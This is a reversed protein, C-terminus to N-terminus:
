FCDRRRNSCVSFHWASILLDSVPVMHLIESRQLMSTAKLTDPIRSVAMEHLSVAVTTVGWLRSSGSSPVWLIEFKM